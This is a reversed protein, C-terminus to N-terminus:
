LKFGFTGTFPDRELLTYVATQGKKTTTAIQYGAAKLDHIRAAARYIGHERDLEIASVGQPFRQLLLDLVVETQTRTHTMMAPEEQVSWAASLGGFQGTVDPQSLGQM